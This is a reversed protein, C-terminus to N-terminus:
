AAKSSMKDPVGFCVSAIHGLMASFTAAVVSGVVVEGTDKTGLELGVDKLSTLRPGPLQGPIITPESTESIFVSVNIEKGGREFSLSKTETASRVVARNPQSTDTITQDAFRTIIDGVQM